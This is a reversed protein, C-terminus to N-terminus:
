PAKRDTLAPQDILVQRFCIFAPANGVLVSRFGSWPAPLLRGAGPLVAPSRRQLVLPKRAPGFALSPPSPRTRPQLLSLSFDYSPQMQWTTLRARRRNPWSRQRSSSRMPRWPPALQRPRRRTRRRRPASPTSPQRHIRGQCTCPGPRGSSGPPRGDARGDDAAAAAADSDHAAGRGGNRRAACAARDAVCRGSFWSRLICVAGSRPRKKIPADGYANLQHVPRVRLRLELAQQHAHRARVQRLRRRVPGSRATRRM